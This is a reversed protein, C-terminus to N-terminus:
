VAYDSVRCLPAPHSSHRAQRAQERAVSCYVDKKQLGTKDLPTKSRPGLFIYPSSSEPRVEKWYRRLRKLLPEPLPIGRDKRRKGGRIWVTQRASDLQEVKLEIGESIRLGLGYITTLAM